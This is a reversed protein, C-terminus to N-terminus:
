ACRTFICYKRSAARASAPSHRPPTTELSYRAAVPSRAGLKALAIPDESGASSNSSSSHCLDLLHIGPFVTTPRLGHPSAPPRAPPATTRAARAPRQGRPPYATSLVTPPRPPSTPFPPADCTTHHRLPRHRLRRGPRTVPHRPRLPGRPPRPPRRLEPWCRTQAPAAASASRSPLRAFLAGFSRGTESPAAWARCSTPATTHYWLEARHYATLLEHHLALLQKGTQTGTPPAPRRCAM